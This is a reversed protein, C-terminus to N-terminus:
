ELVSRYTRYIAQAYSDAGFLSEARFRGASAVSSLMMPMNLVEVIRQALDQDSEFLFITHDREGIEPLGGESRLMVATENTMAEAAALSFGANRSPVVLLDCARYFEAPNLVRGLVKARNNGELRAKLMEADPGDGSLLLQADPISQWVEEMATILADFGHEPVFRGFAGVIRADPKLDFQARVDATEKLTRVNPSVAPYRVLLDLAGGASLEDRVAYSSCYGVQGDNLKEILTPHTTKPMGYATYIWAEKYSYADSCAWATRYGFAHIIEFDRGLDRLRATVKKSTAISTESPMWSTADHVVVEDGLKQLSAALTAALSAMGGFEQRHLLLVRM